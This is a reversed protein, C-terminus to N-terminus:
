DDFLSRQQSMRVDADKIGRSKGSLSQQMLVLFVCADAFDNPLRRWRNVPSSLLWYQMPGM